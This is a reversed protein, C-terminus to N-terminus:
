VESYGDAETERVGWMFQCGFPLRFWTYILEGDSAPVAGACRSLHWREALVAYLDRLAEAETAAHGAFGVTAIGDRVAGALYAVAAGGRTAVVGDDDPLHAAVDGADPLLPELARQRAYREGLLRAAEDRLESLPHIELSPMPTPRYGRRTGFVRVPASSLRSSAGARSASSNMTSPLLRAYRAKKASGSSSAVVSPWGVFASRPKVFM